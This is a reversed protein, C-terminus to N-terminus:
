WDIVDGKGFHRMQLPDEVRVCAIIRAMGAVTEEPEVAGTFNGHATNVNGPHLLLCGINQPALDIALSKTFVNLAGKSARYGYAGGSSNDAVSGMRSTIQAVFASGRASVALRLNALLARTMLLPGLANVEFQRVCDESTTDELNHNECVGANNILLDIPVGELARAAVAISQKESIDLPVVKWPGLRRMRVDEAKDVDRVTAIVNWGELIYHKVFALGIGRNGGTILVTRQEVTASGPGRVSAYRRRSATAEGTPDAQRGATSRALALQDTVESVNRSQGEQGVADASDTEGRRRRFQRFRLGHRAMFNTMWGVSLAMKPRTDEPLGALIQRAKQALLKRSLRVGDAECADVFSKLAVELEPSAVDRGRKTIGLRQKEEIEPASQLIQKVTNTLPARSLNFATQAWRALKTQSLSPCRRHKMVLEFKEEVTLWKGM